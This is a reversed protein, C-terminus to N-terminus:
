DIGLRAKQDDRAAPLRTDGTLKAATLELPQRGALIAEVIAPALFGLRLIRTFYSGGVGAQAAFETMSRGNNKMVMERYRHAQALIRSLSHGPHRRADADAGDIILRTEM